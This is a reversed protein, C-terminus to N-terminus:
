DPGPSGSNQAVQHDIEEAPDRVDSLRRGPGGSNGRPRQRRRRHFPNSFLAALTGLLLAAFLKNKIKLLM